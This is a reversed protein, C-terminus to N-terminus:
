MVCFRACPSRLHQFVVLMANRWSRRAHGCQTSADRGVRGGLGRTLRGKDGRGAELLPMSKVPVSAASADRRFQLGFRVSRSVGFEGTWTTRSETKRGAQMRMQKTWRWRVSPVRMRETRSSHDSASQMQLGTWITFVLQCSHIKDSTSPSVRGIGDTDRIGADVGAQSGTKPGHAPISNQKGTMHYGYRTNGLTVSAM